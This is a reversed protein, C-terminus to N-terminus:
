WISDDRTQLCNDVCEWQNTEPKLYSLCAKSLDRGSTSNRNEFCLLAPSDLNTIANGYPDTLTIDIVAFELFGILHSELASSDYGSPLEIVVSDNPDNNNIERSRSM